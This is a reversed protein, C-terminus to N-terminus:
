EGVAADHLAERVHVVLNESRHPRPPVRRHEELAARHPHLHDDGNPHGDRRRRLLFRNRILIDLRRIREKLPKADAPGVPLNRRGDGYAVSFSGRRGAPHPVRWRQVEKLFRPVWRRARLVRTRGRACARQDGPTRRPRHRGAIPEHLPPSEPRWPAHECAESVPIETRGM